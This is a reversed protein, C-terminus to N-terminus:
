NDITQIFHVTAFGTSLILQFIWINKVSNITTLTEFENNITQVIHQKNKLGLYKIEQYNLENAWNIMAQQPSDAKVQSIYTGGRFDM